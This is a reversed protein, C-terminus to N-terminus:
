PYLKYLTRPFPHSGQHPSGTVWLVMREVGMRVRTPVSGYRRLDLYWGTTRSTSGRSEVGSATPLSRRSRAADRRGREQALIPSLV